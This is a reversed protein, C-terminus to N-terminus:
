ELWTGLVRLAVVVVVIAAVGKLLLELSALILDGFLLAVIAGLVLLTLAAGIKEDTETTPSSM